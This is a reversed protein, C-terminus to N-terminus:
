RYSFMSKYYDEAEKLSVFVLPPYEYAKVVPTKPQRNSKLNSLSSYALSADAFKWRKPPQVSFNALKGSSTSERQQLCPRIKSSFSATRIAMSKRPDVLSWTRPRRKGIQSEDLEPQTNPIFRLPRRSPALEPVTTAGHVLIDDPHGHTLVAAEYLREKLSKLIRGRTKRTKSELPSSEKHNPSSAEDSSPEYMTARRIKKSRLQIFDQSADSGWVGYPREAEFLAGNDGLRKIRTKPRGYQKKVVGKRKSSGKLFDEVTMMLQISTVAINSSLNLNEYGPNEPQTRRPSEATRQLRYDPLNELQQNRSADCIDETRPKNEISPLVLTDEHVDKCAAPAKFGFSPSHNSRSSPSSIINGSSLLHFGLCPDVAHHKRKRSV